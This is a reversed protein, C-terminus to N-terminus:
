NEKAGAKILASRLQEDTVFDLATKGDATKANVDAGAAIFRLVLDNDRFAAAWILATFGARDKANVDAGAKLLADVTSNEQSRMLATMQGENRANVDTGGALLAEVVDTRGDAAAQFFANEAYRSKYEDVGIRIDAGAAALLNKLNAQGIQAAYSYATRGEGDKFNVNAGAAILLRVAKEEGTEVAQILASKGYSDPLNVDAGGALLLELAAYANTKERDDDPNPLVRFLPPDHYFGDVANVDARARILIKLLDPRNRRAAYTIVPIDCDDRFNPSAGKRLFAEVQRADGRKVAELYPEDEAAAAGCLHDGKRFWASGGKKPANVVPLRNDSFSEPKTQARLNGSLILIILLISYSYNM